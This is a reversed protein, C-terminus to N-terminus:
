RTAALDGVHRRHRLREHGAAVDVVGDLGDDLEVFPATPVISADRKQWPRLFWKVHSILPEFPESENSRSRSLSSSCESPLLPKRM